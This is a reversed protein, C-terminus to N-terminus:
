GYYIATAWLSGRRCHNPEDVRIVGIGVRRLKPHLLVARHGESRM